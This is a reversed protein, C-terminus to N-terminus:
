DFLQKVDPVNQEPDPIEILTEPRHGKRQAVWSSPFMEVYNNYETVAANYTRRIAQLQREMEELSAQLSLYHQDAKLDPYAEVNLRLRPLLASLRNGTEIQRAEDTTDNAQNRLAVIQSLTRNEHDTYSKVTAVLNPILDNRQKLAICIGSRCQKVRNRKMILQNSTVVVWLAFFLLILLLTGIFVLPGNM